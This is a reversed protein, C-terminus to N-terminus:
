ALRRSFNLRIEDPRESYPPIPEHPDFATPLLYFAPGANRARALAPALAGADQLRETIPIRAARAIAVLDVEVKPLDQGGSSEYHRNDFLLITLNRGSMAGVTALTGLNMLLSGDGELSIVQRDPKALAMGLAVPIAAGMADCMAFHAAKIPLHPLYRANAGLGAVVLAQADLTAVLADLWAKRPITV